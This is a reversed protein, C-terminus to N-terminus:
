LMGHHVYKIGGVEGVAEPFTGEVDQAMVGIRDVDDGRYRFVYVPIGSDLAGVRRVHTKIRRDSWAGLSAATSGSAFPAAIGAIKGGIEFLSPSDETTQTVGQSGFPVSPIGLGAARGIVASTTDGLRLRNMFAQNRLEEQFQRRSELRGAAEGQAGAQAQFYSLPVQLEAQAARGRVDTVLDGTQRLAEQSVRAGRDLVPTDTSRLGRAPALEERLVELADRSAAEIDSRGLSIASDSARRIADRQPDTLTPGAAVTEANQRVLVDLLTDFENAGTLAREGETQLFQREAPFQGVVDRGFDVASRVAPTVARAQRLAESQLAQETASLPQVRQETTSGGGFISDLFSM